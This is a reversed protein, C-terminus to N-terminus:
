ILSIKGTIIHPNYSSFKCYLKIIEDSVDTLMVTKFSIACAMIRINLDLLSMDQMLDLFTHDGKQKMFKKATVMSLLKNNIGLFYAMRYKNHAVKIAYSLIKFFSSCSLWFNVLIRGPLEDLHSAPSFGLISFNLSLALVIWYPSLLLIVGINGLLLVTQMLSLLTSFRIQAWSDM